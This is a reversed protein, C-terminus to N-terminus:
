ITLTSVLWSISAWSGSLIKREVSSISVLASEMGLMKSVSKSSIKSDLLAPDLELAPVHSPPRPRDRYPLTSSFFLLSLFPCRFRPLLTKRIPKQHCLIHGSINPYVKVFQDRNLSKRGDTKKDNYYLRLLHCGKM